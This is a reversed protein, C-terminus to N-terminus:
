SICNRQADTEEDEDYVQSTNLLLKKIMMGKRDKTARELM